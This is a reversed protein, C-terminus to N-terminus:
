LRNEKFATLARDVDSFTLHKITTSDTKEVSSLLTDSINALNSRASELSALYLLRETDGGYAKFEYFNLIILREIRVKDHEQVSWGDAFAQLLFIQFLQPGTYPNCKFTWMCRRELGPQAVFITSKIQEYYGAFIIVIKDPNESLYLNLVDLAERGYSDRPDNILSYAEDIFLVKGTNAELLKKTKIATHGMYEGIFDSRSVVSILDRDNTNSNIITETTETKKTFYKIVCETTLEYYWWVFLLLIVISLLIGILYTTLNNWVFTSIQVCYLALFSLILMLIVSGDYTSGGIGSGGITGSSPTTTTTTTKITNQNSDLFGLAWWIKALKMATQTKGIGAPGSLVTNLMSMNKKGNKLNEILRVTQIAASDKIRELGIMDNLNQLASVLLEPHRIYKLGPEKNKISKKVVDILKELETINTKMNRKIDQSDTSEFNETIEIKESSYVSANTKDSSDTVETMETMETVVCDESM